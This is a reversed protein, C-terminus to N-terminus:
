ESALHNGVSVKSNRLISRLLAVVVSHWVWKQPVVVRCSRNENKYTAEKM